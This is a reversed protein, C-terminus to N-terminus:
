NFKSVIQRVAAPQVEDITGTLESPTSFDKWRQRNEMVYLSEARAERIIRNYEEENTCCINVWFRAGMNQDYQVKYEPYADLSPRDKDLRRKGQSDTETVWLMTLEEADKAWAEYTPRSEAYIRATKIFPETEVYRRVSAHQLNRISM